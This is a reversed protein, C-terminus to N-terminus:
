RGSRFPARFPQFRQMQFGGSASGSEPAQTRQLQPPRFGGKTPKKSAQKKLNLKTMARKEASRLKKEDDSDEALEDSEYEEVATWGAPSKDAFRILKNRKNVLTKLKELESNTKALNGDLLNKSTTELGDLVASNFEFQIKNGKFKFSGAAKSETKMKKIQSEHFEEREVFSRKFSALKQDLKSDLLQVFRDFSQATPQLSPETSGHPESHGPYENDSALLEREGDSAM